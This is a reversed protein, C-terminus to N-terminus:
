SGNRIKESTEEHSSTAFCTPLLENSFLSIIFFVACLRSWPPPLLRLLTTSKKPVSARGAAQGGSTSCRQCPDSFNIEVRFHLFRLAAISQRRRSRAQQASFNQSFASLLCFPWYITNNSTKLSLLSSMPFRKLEFSRFLTLM